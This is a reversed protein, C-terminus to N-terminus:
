KKWTNPKVGVSPWLPTAVGLQPFWDFAQLITALDCEVVIQAQDLGPCRQRGTRFPLLNYNSGGVSINSNYFRDPNFDLPNKWTKPDRSIVWTNVLVNTKAPIKYNLIQSDKLNYHPIAMPVAPHLRLTEKVIAQLYPLNPLDSEIVARNKGVVRDLEEHAKKMIEPHHVLESLAWEM